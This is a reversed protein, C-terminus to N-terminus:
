RLIKIKVLNAVEGDNTVCISERIPKVRTPDVLTDDNDMILNEIRM